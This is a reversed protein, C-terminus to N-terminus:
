MRFIHVYKSKGTYSTLEFIFRVRKLLFTNITNKKLIYHRNKQMNGRCRQVGDSDSSLRRQAGKLFTNATGGM